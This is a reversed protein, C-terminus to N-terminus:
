REQWGREARSFGSAGVVAFAKAEEPMEYREIDISGPGVHLLQLSRPQGRRTRSSTATGGGCIVFPRLLGPFDLTTTTSFPVHIHGSLLLDVGADALAAAAEAANSVVNTPRTPHLLPGAALAIPHHTFAVRLAAPTANIITRLHQLGKASTTGGVQRLPDVSPLAVVLVDDVVAFPKRHEAPVHAEFASLPALLRHWPPWWSVDHNGPVVLLPRPAIQRCLEVFGRLESRRARQTVDGTVIVLDPKQQAVVQLVGQLAADVVTGFHLDSIHLLTATM